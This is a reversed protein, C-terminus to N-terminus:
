KLGGLLSIRYIMSSISLHRRKTGVRNLYNRKIKSKETKIKRGREIKLVVM